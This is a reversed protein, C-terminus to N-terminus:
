ILDLSGLARRIHINDQNKNKNFLLNRIVDNEVVKLNKLKDNMVIKKTMEYNGDKIFYIYNVPDGESIIKEGKSMKKNKLVM